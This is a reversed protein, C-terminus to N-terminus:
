REEADLNSQSIFDVIASHLPRDFRIGVTAENVWQVTGPWSEFNAMKVTVPNGAFTNSRFLEIMCGNESVNLLRGGIKERSISRVVAATDTPRRYDRRSDRLVIQLTGDSQVDRM